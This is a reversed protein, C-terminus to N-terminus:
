IQGHNPPLTDNLLYNGVHHYKWAVPDHSGHTRANRWHRSLDHREDAASAGALGFLGSAAEAAVETAFAKAQAVALSGRAAAAADRPVRGIGDLTAAASAGV